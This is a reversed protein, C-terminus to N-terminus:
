FFVLLPLKFQEFSFGEIFTDFDLFSSSDNRQFDLYQSQKFFLVTMYPVLIDEKGKVKKM